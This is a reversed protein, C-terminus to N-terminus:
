YTYYTTMSPKYKELLLGSSKALHTHTIRALTKGFATAGTINQTHAHSQHAFLCFKWLNISHLCHITPSYTSSELRNKDCCILHNLPLQTPPINDRQGRQKVLVVTFGHQKDICQAVRSSIVEGGRETAM